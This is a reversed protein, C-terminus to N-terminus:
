GLLKGESMGNRARTLLKRLRAPDVPKTLHAAFGAADTQRKDQEQGRGTLAILCLEAGSRQQKLARATACGDLKPMAMDLLAVQPRFLQAVAVAAQGDYATRVECGELALLMALSEAADQNDDAILVRLKEPMVSPLEAPTSDPTECLTEILPLRVIFESGKGPGGSRAEVNGGHLDMLGKVLALGIGLGGEARASYPSVQSFMMFLRHLQEAPIGIGNDKVSIILEDNVRAALEIKGGADTYKASNTLLNSLVQALRLPDANLTLSEEPL